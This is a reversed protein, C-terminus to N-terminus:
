LVSDILYTVHQFIVSELLLCSLSKVVLWVFIKYEDIWFKLYCSNIQDDFALFSTVSSTLVSCKVIWCIPWISQIDHLGTTLYCVCLIKLNGAGCTFSSYPIKSYHVKQTM